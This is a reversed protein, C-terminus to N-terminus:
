FYKGRFNLLVDKNVGMMAGIEVSACVGEAIEALIAKAAGIM